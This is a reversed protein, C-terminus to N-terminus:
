GTKGTDAEVAPIADVHREQRRGGVGADTETAHVEFTLGLDFRANLINGLRVAGGGDGLAIDLNVGNFM